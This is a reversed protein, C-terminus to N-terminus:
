IVLSIDINYLIYFRSSKDSEYCNGRKILYDKVSDMECLGIGGENYTNNNSIRKDNCIFYM